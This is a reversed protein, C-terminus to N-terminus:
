SGYAETKLVYGPSNCCKEKLYESALPKRVGGRGRGGVLVCM